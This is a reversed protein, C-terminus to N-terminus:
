EPVAGLDITYTLASDAAIRVVQLSKRGPQYSQPAIRCKAAGTWRLVLRRTDGLLRVADSTTKLKDAPGVLLPVLEVFAGQHQVSVSIRDEGFTIRKEGRKELPYRVELPGEPLDHCGVSVAVPTGDVRFEAELSRSEYVQQQGESLTGWAAVRSGTQSQLVAGVTPSWVLGLGYRQQLRILRGSTFAAYYSPRRVYTYVIPSRSDVRQHIFRGRVLYPLRAIAAQQEAEAPRWRCHARHLFAYPSYTSSGRELPLVHPWGKEMDARVAAISRAAAERSPVFARALEVKEALPTERRGAGALRRPDTDPQNADPLLAVQKRTEISRNLAYGSGDPERVANYSLWDYFRRTEEVLRPELDTGRAYHWAIWLNSHHTGLNYSWDPGDAEYFYGAPSQFDKTAQELRQRLLREIEVDPFLNLYALAGGWVNTYQNAFHRGSRYLLDITLVALIAKRDAQIVRQHLAADIPPGSALLRLTEGMYKTAFATAPLNWERLGYESFRGDENQLRCWFDLVAELRAKVAPHGYYPNWPRKTAYFFAMALHNEMVRANFPEVNSRWVPLRLFGRNEGETEMSNALRHFYALYYPLDVEDDAFDAPKLKSLDTPPVEAMNAGLAIRIFLVAAPM